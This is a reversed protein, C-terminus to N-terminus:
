LGPTQERWWAWTERVTQELPITAQWGTRAKLRRADAIPDYRIGPRKEIIPREPGALARLIELVEGSRRPVGSGVNFVEGPRGHEMVLRFARVADRADTLDIWADRTYVEVPGNGAAFQQCWQPLMLRPAQRPGTHQFGRVVLGHLHRERVAALLEQEALLKSQGYGFLPGLPADEAVLTPKSWSRAYVHASSLLLVRPRQPLAAALDLVRRIGAVNVAMARASPADQGCDAPVSLAGLHYIRTPAFADVQRRAEDGLGEEEGLDWAVLPARGILEPPSFPDWRGEPACGLLHDGAELLHEALYGGLFGTIGTILVREPM